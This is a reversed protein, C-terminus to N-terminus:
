DYGPPIIDDLPHDVQRVPRPPQQHVEDLGHEQVRPPVAVLAPSLLLHIEILNSFLEQDRLYLLGPSRLHYCSGPV